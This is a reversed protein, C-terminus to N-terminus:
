GSYLENFMWEGIILDFHVSSDKLLNQVNENEMSAKSIERMMIMIFAVDAPDVKNEMIATINM